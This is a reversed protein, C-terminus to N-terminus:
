GVNKIEPEKLADLAAQIEELYGSKYDYVGTSRALYEFETWQSPSTRERDFMVWLKMKRWVAVIPLFDMVVKPDVLRKRSLYGVGEFFGAIRALSSHSCKQEMEAASQFDGTIIKSYAETMDTAIFSSFMNVVIGVRRDKGIGRLEIVAFIAGAIFGVYALGELVQLVDVV